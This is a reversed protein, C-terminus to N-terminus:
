KRTTKREPLDIKGVVKVEVKPHETQIFEPKRGKMFLGDLEDYNIINQPAIGELYRQLAVKKKGKSHKPKANVIGYYDGVIILLRKQRSLAVNIRNPTELFGLDLNAGSKVLDVIMIDRELGQFRDIVSTTLKEGRKKKDGESSWRALKELKKQSILGGVMKRLKRYQATYGTIVGMSYDKVNEGCAKNMEVLLNSIVDINNKNFASGNADKSNSYSSGTDIFFVSGKRSLPLNHEKEADRSVPKIKQDGESEYFCKSTLEVQEKSMRRCETLQTKFDDPVQGIVREFLSPRNVYDDFGDFEEGEEKYKERLWNEVDRSATLMSRLQRHDGVFVLNKGRVIPVLSEAMTAKGSEDMIVYDFGDFNYRSYKKSAIHNCTAGVVRISDIMRTNIPSKEDLSTVTALWDRHLKLKNRFDDTEIGLTQEIVNVADVEETPLKQLAKLQPTRTAITEIESKAKEWEPNKVYAEMIVSAFVSKASWIEKFGDFEKQFNLIAKDMVQKKWGGLKRTITHEKISEVKPATVGCLRLVPIENKLLNELVQDVANNTQSTILIKAKPDQALIQFVIETIVTTKGTGPPGQIVSLPNCSLANCIAKRQNFSYEFAQGDSDKQFVNTLEFRNSYDFQLEDPKFLYYILDKNVVDGTEVKRIADLQRQKEEEQQRTDEKLNGKQPLDEKIKSLGECDKIKLIFRKKETTNDIHKEDDDDPPITEISCPKGAFELKGVVKGKGIASIVYKFGESEPANGEDVHSKIQGISSCNGDLEGEFIIYNDNIKYEGYRLHMAKEAIVDLEKNLLKKYFGLEKRYESKGKEEEVWQNLYDSIDVTGTRTETMRYNSPLRHAFRSSKQVKDKEHTIDNTFLLMEKDREWKVGKFYFNGAIIDMWIDEEDNKKVNVFYVPGKELSSKAKSFEYEEVSNRTRDTFTIEVPRDSSNEGFGEEDYHSSIYEDFFCVVESWTPRDTPNSSTMKELFTGMEEDLEYGLKEACSKLVKGLSLVDYQWIYAGKEPNDFLGFDVLKFSNERTQEVMITEENIGCLGLKTERFVKELTRSIGRFGKIVSELDVDVNDIMEKLTYANGNDWQVVAYAKVSEDYGHDFIKALNECEIKQLRGLRSRLGYVQESDEELDRIWRVRYSNGECDTASSLIQGNYLDGLQQYKSFLM